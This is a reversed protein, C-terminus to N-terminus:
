SLVREAELGETESDSSWWGPSGVPRPDTEKGGVVATGLFGINELHYLWCLSYGGEWVSGQVSLIIFHCFSLCRM